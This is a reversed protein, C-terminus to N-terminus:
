RDRGSTRAGTRERSREEVARRSPHDPPLDHPDIDEHSQSTAGMPAREDAVMTAFTDGEDAEVSDIDGRHRAVKRRAAFADFMGAAILIALLIAVPIAFPAQGISVLIVALLACAAALTALMGVM